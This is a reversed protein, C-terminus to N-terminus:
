YASLEEWVIAYGLAYTGSDGTFEVVIGENQALVIPYDGLKTDWLPMYTPGFTSPSNGIAAPTNFVQSALPNADKTRTGATITQGNAVAMIQGSAVLSQRMTNRMKNQTQTAPSNSAGPVLVTGGTDNVTWSRAAFLNWVKVTGVAGATVKGDSVSVTRILALNTADAWRFSFVPANTLTGNVGATGTFFGLSYVGLSGYDNPRIIGRIAKTNVEVEAVPSPGALAGVTLGSGLIQVAM